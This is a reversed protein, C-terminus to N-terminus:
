RKKKPKVARAATAEAGTAEATVAEATVAEAAVAEAAVAEAALAEGLVAEASEVYALSAEADRASEIASEAVETLYHDGQRRAQQYLDILNGLDAM